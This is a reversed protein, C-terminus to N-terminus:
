YFVTLRGHLVETKHFVTYLWDPVRFGRHTRLGRPEGVTVEFHTDRHDTLPYRTM